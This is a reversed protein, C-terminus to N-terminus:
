TALAEPFGISDRQPAERRLFPEQVLSVHDVHAIARNYGTRNRHLSWGLRDCLMPEYTGASLFNLAADQVVKEDDLTQMLMDLLNGYGPKESKLFAKVAKSRQRERAKAAIERGFKHVDTLSARFKSGNFLETIQYIPNQFREGTQGSCYDFAASFPSSTDIDM